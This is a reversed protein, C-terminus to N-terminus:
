SVADLPKAPFFDALLDNPTPSTPPMQIKTRRRYSPGTSKPSSVPCLDHLMARRKEIVPTRFYPKDADNDVTHALSIKALGKYESNEHEAAWDGFTARLGHPVFPLGLNAHFKQCCM